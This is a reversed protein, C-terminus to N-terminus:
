IREGASWTWIVTWPPLPLGRRLTAEVAPATAYLLEGSPLSAPPAPTEGLNAWLALKSRDPLRWHVELAREGLVNFRGDMPGAGGSLPRLRPILHRHRLALLERYLNLWALHPSSRRSAWDLVSRERTAPANPDPITERVQPDSFREFRSFEGRRGERVARGLEADFDCFYQFPSAAAFEEGMFLMVPSPALLLVAIGARMADASALDSLREGFARNGVQDHNQLFNIFAGPPLDRSSEGRPRGDHYPAPEGQYGFGETLCRGLLWAPREAYQGYYGDREGTLLTHLAHHIDDNWQANYLVVEGHEGRQLHRAVNKDNELILHVHRERGPGAHVAEALEHLVHRPSDDEIAHVADLRLGDLHYEELWYLANHIFFDRVVRRDPGDFNIGAGWPTPHRETFFQPAYSHLYNGEPGFHNYVVDLLVM